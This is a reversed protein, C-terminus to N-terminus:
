TAPPEQKDALYFERRIVGAQRTAELFENTRVGLGWHELNFIMPSNFRRMQDIWLVVEPYDVWSLGRARIREFLKAEGEPTWGSGLGAVLRWM